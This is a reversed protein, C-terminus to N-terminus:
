FTMGRFFLSAAFDLSPFITGFFSFPGDLSLLLLLRPSFFFYNLPQFFFFFPTALPLHFQLIHLFHRLLRLFGSLCFLTQFLFSFLDWPSLAPFPYLDFLSSNLIRDSYVLYATLSTLLCSHFM